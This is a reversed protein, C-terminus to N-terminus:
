QYGLHVESTHNHLSPVEHSEEEALMWVQEWLDVKGEEDNVRVWVLTRVWSSMCAVGEKREPVRFHMQESPVGPLQVSSM